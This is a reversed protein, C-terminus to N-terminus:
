GRGAVEIAFRGLTARLSTRWANRVFLPDVIFNFISRKRIRYELELAVEVGDDLPTFTVTQRGTISDDTVEVTQGGLPDFGVVRETVRGRGAPVSRWVVSSGVTPWEGEVSAVEELGDVWDPWRATDFWVEAADHVSAAVAMSAGVKAM